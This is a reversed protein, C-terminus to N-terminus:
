RKRMISAVQQALLLGRPNPRLVVERGQREATVLDVGARTETVGKGLYKAWRSVLSFSAHEDRLDGVNIGDTAAAIKLFCRAAQISFEPDITRFIELLRMSQNIAIKEEQNVPEKRLQGAQFPWLNYIPFLPGAVSLPRAVSIGHKAKEGHLIERGFLFNISKV